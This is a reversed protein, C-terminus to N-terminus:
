WRVVVGVVPLGMGPLVFALPSDIQAVMWGFNMGFFGTLFTLPLFITAVVTLWYTTENLRLQILTAVANAAADIADVLRHLQEGIREFYREDDSQAGEVQAIEVGIREVTGGQPAVARRLESLQSIVARVSPMPRRSARLDTSGSQLRELELEADHLADLATAVM